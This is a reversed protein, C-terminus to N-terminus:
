KEQDKQGRHKKRILDQRHKNIKQEIKKEYITKPRREINHKLKTDREAKTGFKAIDSNPVRVEQRNPEKIVSTTPNVKCVTSGPALVEYLGDLNKKQGQSEHIKRAFKVQFTRESFPFPRSVGESKILQQEGDKVKQKEKRARAYATSIVKEIETDSCLATDAWQEETLYARGPKTYEVLYKKIIKNYNLNKNNPKATINSIPTNCKRGFHAEFPTIDIQKKNQFDWDNFLQM